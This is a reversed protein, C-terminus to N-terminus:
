LCIEPIQCRVPVPGSFQQIIEKELLYRKRWIAIESNWNMESFLNCLQADFQGIIENREKYKRPELFGMDIRCILGNLCKPLLQVLEVPVSESLLIKRYSAIAQILEERIANSTIAGHRELRKKLLNHCSCFGALIKEFLGVVESGAVPIRTAATQLYRSFSLRDCPIDNHLDLVIDLFIREALKEPTPIDLMEVLSRNLADPLRFSELEWALSEAIKQEAMKRICAIHSKLAIDYSFFVRVWISDHEPHFAPYGAVPISQKSCKLPVPKLLRVNEWRDAFEMEIHECYHSWEVSRIGNSRNSKRADIDRCARFSTVIVGKENQVLIRPWLYDPICSSIEDSSISIDFHTRLARSLADSFPGTCILLEESLKSIAVDSDALKEQFRSKLMELCYRIREKVFVPLFWEWYFLPVIRFIREPVKMSIGDNENGPAYSYLVQINQNCIEIEDPFEYENLTGPHENILDDKKFILFSDGGMVKIKRVLDRVCSVQPLQQEYLDALIQEGCFLRTRLKQETKHINERTERNKRIFRFREGVLEKVLAERIFIEHALGPDKKSLDIIRNKVLNLGHFTVEEYALVTGSQQDFWPDQWSYRCQSKFLEEIWQPKVIAAMRGYVKSTQVIEHFLVWSADKAFLVSSPFPCIEGSQIGKYLGKDVRHAIGHMLGALLSKHITDYAAQNKKKFSRASISRCILELQRHADFWERMRLPLLNYKECFKDLEKRTFRKRNLDGHFAKWLSVFSMFDSDPHRFHAPRQERYGWPDDVSLAAAIILVEPLAGNDCAYMLMRAVPPDLPLRAMRKGLATLQNRQDTAGLDQLQCYGDSFAKRSSQQPFPFRSADGLGLSLMKLIVGALNTRRIEPTTFNPRSLFDQESYLRICVGDSVRGCRGARQQASAKSIREIPMRTFGISPEYSLMRALGSDIVFRIGPVTISTEAINTSVVIKRGKAPRFINQQLAASMRSHLPLIAVEEGCVQRLRNVTELIDEITPLFILIDGEEGNGLLERVANLIGEIYCDMSQGKWLEIAPKYRIEVPFLRGSVTIVPAHHFIRSFLGTDITASSIILRLDPRKPLLVRMYGLLFDINVSREHAEDIIIADYKRLLPDHSIESLLIGDTMFKIKTDASMQERFRIQYGVVNKESTSDFCSGVYQALSLAAIRRPQTCGVIGRQGLGAELCLLPLQTTKGSGTEGSIVTVQSTRITEIIEDRKEFIPLQTQYTYKM